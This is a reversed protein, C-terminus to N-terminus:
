KTLQSLNIVLLWDGGQQETEIRTLQNGPLKSLAAILQRVTITGLEPITALLEELAKDM